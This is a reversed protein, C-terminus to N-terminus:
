GVQRIHWPAEDAAPGTVEFQELQSDLLLTLRAMSLVWDSYIARQHRMEGLDGVPAGNPRWDPTTGKRAHRSILDTEPSPLAMFCFISM